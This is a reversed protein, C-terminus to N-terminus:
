LFFFILHYIFYLKYMKINLKNVICYTCKYIVFLPFKHIIFKPVLDFKFFIVCILTMSCRGLVKEVGLQKLVYYM